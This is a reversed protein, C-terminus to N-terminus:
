RVTEVIRCQKLRWDEAIGASQLAEALANSMFRKSYVMPDFWLDAGELAASSVAVDGDEFWSHVKWVQVGTQRDVLFKAVNESQEPLICNKQAGFNLLFFEGEYPTVLDAKYIPFPVLGGEGLDFRALVEALKGKVAYFGGVAFLDHTRKFCEEDFVAAAEAMETRQLAYGKSHRYVADVVNEHPLGQDHQAPRWEEDFYKTRLGPKDFIAQGGSMNSIWVKGSM